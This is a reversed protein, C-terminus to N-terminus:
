YKAKGKLSINDMDCSRLSVISFGETGGAILNPTPLLVIVEEWKHLRRAYVSFPSPLDQAALENQTM